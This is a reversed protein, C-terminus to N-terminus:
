AIVGTWIHVHNQSYQAQALAQLHHRSTQQALPTRILGCSFRWGEGGYERGAATTNDSHPRNIIDSTVKFVNCWAKLNLLRCEWYRVACACCSHELREFAAENPVHASANFCRLVSLMSAVLSASCRLHRSHWCHLLSLAPNCKTSAKLRSLSDSNGNRAGTHFPSFPVSHSHVKEAFFM